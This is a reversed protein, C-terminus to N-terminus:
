VAIEDLYPILSKTESFPDEDYDDDIYDNKYDDEKAAKSQTPHIEVYGNPNSDENDSCPYVDIYGGDNYSETDSAVETDNTKASSKEFTAETDNTKGSSKEFTAETDNTKASSKEFTTETDNYMETVSNKDVSDLELLIEPCKDIIHEYLYGHIKYHGIKHPMYYKAIKFCYNDRVCPDMNWVNQLYQFIDFDGRTAADCILSGNRVFPDGGNEILTHVLEINFKTPNIAICNAQFLGPAKEIIQKTDFDIVELLYDGYRYLKLVNLSDSIPANAIKFKKHTTFNADKICPLLKSSIITYSM